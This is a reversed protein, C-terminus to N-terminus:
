LRRLFDEAPILRQHDIKDIRQDLQPSVVRPVRSMAAMANPMQMRHRPLTHLITRLRPRSISPRTSPHSLISKEPVAQAPHTPPLKQLHGLQARRRRKMSYRRILHSAGADLLRMEQLEFLAPSVQGGM